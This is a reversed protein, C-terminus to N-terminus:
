LNKAGGMAFFVLVSVVMLVIGLIEIRHSGDRLGFSLIILGCATVLYSPLMSRYRSSAGIYALLAACGIAIMLISQNNIAAIM